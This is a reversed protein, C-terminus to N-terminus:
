MNILRIPDLTILVKVTCRKNVPVMMKEKREFSSIKKFSKRRPKILSMILPFDPPTPFTMYTNRFIYIVDDVTDYISHM